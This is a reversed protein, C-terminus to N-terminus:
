LIGTSIISLSFFSLQKFLQGKQEENHRSKSKREKFSLSLNSDYMVGSKDLYFELTERGSPSKQM